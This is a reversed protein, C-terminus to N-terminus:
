HIKKPNFISYLLILVSYIELRGLLMNFILVIKSFNDFFAFNEVAGVKALGPGVGSITAVSASFSTIIDHGRLTLLLTVTFFIFIYLILFAIINHIVSEHYNQRDIKLSFFARPYALKKIESGIFKIALLVRIQKMGGSTSGACGGIFMLLILLLKSFNSWLDFDTTAFGTATGLSITQFFSHRICLGINDKYLALDSDQLHNHPLSVSGYYNIVTILVASILLICTYFRWESNSFFKLFNGKILTFHLFFNIGSLYMFIMIVIEIYASKFGAVSDNLTSFGGTGVTGFTHCLANFLDMGGIMLLITLILTMGFYIYWLIKATDKVRPSIKDKTPGSIEAKFLKSSNLGLMPLIAVALVIIGMGGLWHTLSRWLLIGKPLVEINTLISSGTTTFGSMTEFLCDIFNTNEIGYFFFPLAGFLAAFIWGLSVIVFGERPRVFPESRLSAAMVTGFAGTILISLM